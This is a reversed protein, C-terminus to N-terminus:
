IKLLSLGLAMVPAGALISDVRDLMGGHGPLLTGSDKVGAARKFMSECLDGVVSFAAVVLSLGVITVIQGPTDLRFVLPSACAAWAACLLMGGLMGELTKGPSISPALKRRGFNRGALYAGIDAAFILFFLFFVRLAGDPMARLMWLALMTPAILLLGIVSMMAVGPPRDQFNQPFGRLLVLAYGWWLVALAVVCVAYPQLLWAVVMAVAVLATFAARGAPQAAKGGMLGAWEWAAILGAGCFVVYLYPPALYWIAALLLPVLVLATAVRQILM